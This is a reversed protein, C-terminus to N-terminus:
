VVEGRVFVELFWGYVKVSCNDPSSFQIGGAYDTFSSDGIPISLRNSITYTGATKFQGYWMPFTEESAEGIAKVYELNVEQNAASTIFTTITNIHVIDGVSLESFDLRNTTTNWLSTVGEPLYDANTKADAGDNTLYAAGSGGTYSIPTSQTTVDIVSHWGGRLKDSKKLRLDLDVFNNDLEQYTLQSGKTLRYTITM